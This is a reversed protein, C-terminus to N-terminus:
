KWSNKLDIFTSKLLFFLHVCINGILMVIFSVDFVLLMSYQNADTFCMITYMMLLETCTNFIELKQM